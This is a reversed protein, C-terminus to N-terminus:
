GSYDVADGALPRVRLYARVWAHRLARATDDTGQYPCDTMPRDRRACFAAHTVAAKAQADLNM